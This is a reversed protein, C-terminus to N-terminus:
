SKKILVFNYKTNKQQELDLITRELISIESNLSKIQNTLTTNKTNGSPINEISPFEKYLFELKQLITKQKEEQTKISASINELINKLELIKQSSTESEKKHNKNNKLNTKSNLLQEITNSLAEQREKLSKIAIETNIFEKELQEKTQMALFEPNKSLEELQAEFDTIAARKISIDKKISAITEDTQIKLGELRYDIAQLNNVAEDRQLLLRHFSKLINSASLRQNIGSKGNQLVNTVAYKFKDQPMNHEISPFMALFENFSIGKKLDHNCCYCAEVLNIDSHHNEEKQNQPSIHDITKLIPRMNRALLKIAEEYTKKYIQELITEGKLFPKKESIELFNKFFEIEANNEMRKALAIEDSYKAGTLKETISKIKGQLRASKLQMIEKAMSELQAETYVKCGCYACHNTPNTIDAYDYNKSSFSITDAKIGM